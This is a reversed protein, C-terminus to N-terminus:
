QNLICAFVHRRSLSSCAPHSALARVLCDTVDLFLWLLDWARAAGRSWQLLCADMHRSGCACTSVFGEVQEVEHESMAICCLLHLLNHAIANSTREFPQESRGNMRKVGVASKTPQRSDAAESM